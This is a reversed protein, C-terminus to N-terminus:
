TELKKAVSLEVLGVWVLDLHEMHEDHSFIYNNKLFSNGPLSIM